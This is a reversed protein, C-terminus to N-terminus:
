GQPPRLISPPPLSRNLAPPAIAWETAVPELATALIPAVALNTSQQSDHAAQHMPNPSDPMTDPAAAHHDGDAEIADDSGHVHPLAGHWATLALMGFIALFALLVPYRALAGGKRAPRLNALMSTVTKTNDRERAIWLDNSYM